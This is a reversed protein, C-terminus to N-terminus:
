SLAAPEASPSPTSVSLHSWLSAVIIAQTVSPHSLQDMFFASHQLISAKSSHLLHQLLSKPTGQVALLDLWDMRFSILGSYDNSPTNSSSWHKPWRIYFASENSFAGTSPFVSSLLLLACCLILHNSPMVSKTFTLKLLSRFNTISLSAQHAPTWPTASDSVVPCSFQSVSRTGRQTSQMCQTERKHVLFNPSLCTFCCASLHCGPDVQGQLGPGIWSAGPLYPALCRPLAM